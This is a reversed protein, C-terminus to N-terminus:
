FVVAAIVEPEILELWKRSSRNEMYPLRAPDSPFLHRSWDSGAPGTRLIGERRSSNGRRYIIGTRASQQAGWCCHHQVAQFFTANGEGSVVYEEKSFANGEGSCAVSKLKTPFAGTNRM